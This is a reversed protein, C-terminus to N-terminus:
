YYWDVCRQAVFGSRGSWTVKIWWNSTGGCATYSGGQTASCSAVARQGPQIVGLRTSSANARLRVNVGDVGKKPSVYCTKSVSADGSPVPAPPAASATSPLLVMAVLVFFAGLSALVSNRNV